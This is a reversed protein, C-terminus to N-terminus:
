KKTDFIGDKETLIELHKAFVDSCENIHKSM